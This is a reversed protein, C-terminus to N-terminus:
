PVKKKISYSGVNFKNPRLTAVQARCNKRWVLDGINGDSYSADKRRLNYHHRNKEYVPYTM